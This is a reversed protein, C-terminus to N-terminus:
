RRDGMGRAASNGRSHCLVLFGLLLRVAFLALVAERADVLVHEVAEVEDDLAALAGIGVGGIGGAQEAAAALLDGLLQALFRDLRQDFADAAVPGLQDAFAGVHEVVQQGQPGDSPTLGLVTHASSARRSPRDPM